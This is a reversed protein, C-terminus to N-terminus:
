RASRGAPAGAGFQLTRKTASTPTRGTPEGGVARANLEAIARLLQVRHGVATVGLGDLDTRSLLLLADGAIANREFTDAYAELGGGQVRVWTAVARPSWKQPECPPAGRAAAGGVCGSDASSLASVGGGVSDDSDDPARIPPPPPLLPGVPSCARPSKRVPPQLAAAAGAPSPRTLRAGASPAPRPPSKLPAGWRHRPEFPSPLLSAPSVPASVAWAAGAPTLAGVGGSSRGFSIPDSIPSNVARCTQAGVPSAPHPGSSRQSSSQSRFTQAVIQRSLAQSAHVPRHAHRTDPPSLSLPSLLFPRTPSAAWRPPKRSTHSRRSSRHLARM